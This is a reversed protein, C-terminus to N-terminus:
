PVFVPAPEVHDDLPLSLVLAAARATAAMHAEVIPRWADDISLGMVKEMHAVHAREDFPLETM